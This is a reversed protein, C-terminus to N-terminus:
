HENFKLKYDVNVCLLKECVSKVITSDDINITINESSSTLLHCKDENAEMQSDRFWSFLKVSDNELPNTVDEISDGTVCSTNDEAYSPFDAGNM